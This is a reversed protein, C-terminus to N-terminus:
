WTRVSALSGLLLALASLTWLWYGTGYGTVRAFTPAESVVVSKVFVFSVMLVLATCSFVIAMRRRRSVSAFWGLFLAPNALWAPTGQFVSVWGLVLEGWGPSWARPNHGEVYFGDTLLSAVYLAISAWFLTRQLPRSVKSYEMM